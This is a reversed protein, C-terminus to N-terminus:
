QNFGKKYPKTKTCYTIFENAGIGYKPKEYEFFIIENTDVNELKNEKIFANQIYKFCNDVTDFEFIGTNDKYTNEFWYYKNNETFLLFTHIANKNNKTYLMFFTQYNFKNKEFFRREYEVQDWCIGINTTDLDKPNQLYYDTLFKSMVIKNIYKLGTKDIWGYNFSKMQKLLENAENM